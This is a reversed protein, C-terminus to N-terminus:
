FEEHYINTLLLQECKLENQECKPDKPESLVIRAIRYSSHLIDALEWILFFDTSDQALWSRLKRFLKDTNWSKLYVMDGDM